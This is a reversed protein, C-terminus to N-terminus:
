RTSVYSNLLFSGHIVTPLLEKHVRFQEPLPVSPFSESLLNTVSFHIFRNSEKVNVNNKDRIIAFVKIYDNRLDYVGCTGVVCGERSEVFLGSSGSYTTETVFHKIPISVLLKTYISHGEEKKTIM